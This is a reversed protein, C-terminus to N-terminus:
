RDIEKLTAAWVPPYSGESELALCGLGELSGLFCCGEMSTALGPRSAM